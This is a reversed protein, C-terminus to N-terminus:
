NNPPPSCIYNDVIFKRAKKHSEQFKKQRITIEDRVHKSELRIHRIIKMPKRDIVRQGRKQRYLRYIIKFFDDPLFDKYDKTYDTRLVQDFKCNLPTNIKILKSETMKSSVGDFNNLIMRPYFPDVNFCSTDITSKLIPPFVGCKLQEIEMNYPVQPLSITGINSSAKTNILTLYTPMRHIYRMVTSSEMGIEKSIFNLMQELTETRATLSDYLPHFFYMKPTPNSNINTEDMILGKLFYIPSHLYSIETLPVDTDIALIFPTKCKKIENKKQISEIMVSSLFKVRHYLLDLQYYSYRTSSLQPMLYHFNEMNKRLPLLTNHSLHNYKPRDFCLYELVSKVDHKSHDDLRRAERNFHRAFFRQLLM